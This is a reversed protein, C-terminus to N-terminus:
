EIKAEEKVEEKKVEEKLSMILYSTIMHNLILHMDEVPGYEGKRSEILVTHDCIKALQGGDFGILGITSGGKCKALKVADIVNPSNGSASIVVLVDGEDFNYQIQKSFISEYDYDNGIATLASVNDTISQCRFGKGNIKRGIESVDQCFHSSTSASGGNGAFYIFKDNERAELFIETVKRVAAVDLGNLLQSLYQSYEKFYQENNSSRTYIEELTNM